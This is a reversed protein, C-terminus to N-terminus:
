SLIAGLTEAAQQERAPIVHAYTSMTVVPSSHGLIKGVTAVDYGAVLLATAASHRLSHLTAKGVGAAGAVAAFKKSVNSPDLPTGIETTFVYGSDAWLSGAALREAKQRTGHSRLEAVLVAPLNVTRRSRESKPEDEVIGHGAVRNRGVKVRLTAAELDVASWRLALGEGRRLGTMVYLLWLGRLRDGGVARILAALQAGHLYAAESKDMRARDVVALPNRAVLGDRRATEFLASAAAHLSRRSSPALRPRTQGARPQALDLFLKEFHAPTAKGLLVPGLRPKVHSRLLGAYLAKTSVKRDSAALTSGIWTEIYDGLKTRADAAPMGQEIRALADRLRQKVEPRTRGYLSRRGGGPLSVSAVWRGDGRQYISGEGNARRTM